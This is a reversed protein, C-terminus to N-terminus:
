EHTPFIDYSHLSAYYFFFFFQVVFTDILTHLFFINNISGILDLTHMWGNGFSLGNSRNICQHRSFTNYLFFVSCFYYFLCSDLTIGSIPFWNVNIRWCNVYSIFNSYALCYVSHIVNRKKRKNERDGNFTWHITPSKKKKKNSETLHVKHLKENEALILATLDDNNMWSLTM